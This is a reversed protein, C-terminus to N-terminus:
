SRPFISTPFNHSAFGPSNSPCAACIFECAYAGAAFPFAVVGSAVHELFYRRQPLTPRKRKLKRAAIRVAARIIGTPAVLLFALASCLMWWQMAALSVDALGLHLPNPQPGFKPFEFLRDANYWFAALYAALIAIYTIWSITPQPVLRQVLIYARGAWYIQSALPLLIFVALLM